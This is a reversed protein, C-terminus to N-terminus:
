RGPNGRRGPEGASRVTPTTPRSGPRTPFRAFASAVVENVAFGLSYSLRRATPYNLFEHSARAADTHVLVKNGGPYGIQLPRQERASALVTRHGASTSSGATAM